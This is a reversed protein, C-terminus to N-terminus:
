LFNIALFSPPTEPRMPLDDSRATSDLV